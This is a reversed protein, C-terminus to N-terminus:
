EAFRVACLIALKGDAKKLAIRCTSGEDKIFVSLTENEMCQASYHVEMSSIKGEAIVAAPFCDLIARVYAVNNMHHGLDIDTSRVTYSHSYDDPTFDDIFRAPTATIGTKDAFQFDAPFGSQAFQMLRGGTGLIAWQTRGLAILTDGNYLSGSRFTRYARGDCKEPWTTATLEDLLKASNFFDVRCHVTLWFEGRAAMAENGVGILEAHQAALGQFITFVGLPSIKGSADCLDPMVDVKKSFCGQM